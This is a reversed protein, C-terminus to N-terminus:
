GGFVRGLLQAFFGLALLGLALCGAGVPWSTLIGVGISGALWFPMTMSEYAGFGPSSGFNGPITVRVFVVTKYLVGLAGIAILSIGLYSPM